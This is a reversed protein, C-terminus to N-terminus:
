KEDVIEEALMALVRSDEPFSPRVAVFNRNEEIYFNWGKREVGNKDTYNHKKKFLRM